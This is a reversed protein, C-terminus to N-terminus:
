PFRRVQVDGKVYLPHWPHGAKTLRLCVVKQGWPALANLVAEDRREWVGHTGWAAVIRDSEGAGRDIQRLNEAEVEEPEPGAAKLVMPDTARLPSLNTVILNNFGWRSAYDICRSVTPDNNHEDATSPNLMIFNVTKQGPLMPTLRRSLRYRYRGCPSFRAGM